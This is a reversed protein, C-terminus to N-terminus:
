SPLDIVLRPPSSLTSVRFPVQTKLGAV